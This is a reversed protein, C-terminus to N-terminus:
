KRTNDRLLLRSWFKRFWNRIATFFSVKQKKEIMARDTPRDTPRDMTGPFNFRIRSPATEVRSHITEEIKDEKKLASVSAQYTMGCVICKDTNKNVTECQSCTWIDDM